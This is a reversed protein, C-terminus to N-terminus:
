VRYGEKDLSLNDRKSHDTNGAVPSDQHGALEDIIEHLEKPKTIKLQRFIRILEAPSWLEGDFIPVLKWGTGVRYEKIVLKNRKSDETVSLWAHWKPKQNGCKQASLFYQTGKTDVSELEFGGYRMDSQLIM